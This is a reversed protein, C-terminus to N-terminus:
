RTAVLYCACIMLVGATILASPVGFALFVGAVILCAGLTEVFTTFIDRMLRVGRTLSKQTLM